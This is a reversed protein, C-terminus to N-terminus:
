RRIVSISLMDHGYKSLTVIQQIIFSFIPLPLLILSAFVRLTYRLMTENCTKPRHKGNKVKRSWSTAYCFCKNRAPSIQQSFNLEPKCQTVFKTSTARKEDSECSTVRCTSPKQTQYKAATISTECRSGHFGLRCTCIFGNLRDTCTSSNHCPNSECHDIDESYIM